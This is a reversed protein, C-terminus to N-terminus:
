AASVAQRLLMRLTRALLWLDLSVSRHRIYDLDLRLRQATADPHEQVLQALGSIGPQVALVQQWLPDHLDIEDPRAPRPGILSMEGKLVNVLQPLEDLRARRLVRGVRTVEMGPGDNRAQMTRFKLMWFLRGDRGIRRDHYLVPRGTDLWVLLAIASMLPALVILHLGALVLDLSRKAVRYYRGAHRLEDDVRAYAAGLAGSPGLGAIVLRQVEPDGPDSGYEAAADELHAILERRILDRRAPTLRALHHEIERLYSQFPQEDPSHM